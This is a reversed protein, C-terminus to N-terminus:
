NIGGGANLDANTSNRGATQRGLLHAPGAYTQGAVKPQMDVM